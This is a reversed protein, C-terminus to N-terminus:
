RSGIRFLVIEVTQLLVMLDFALTHHKVYYLDYELKERADKESAGYNYRVQAWGTIGPKVFHRQRYYPIAHALTEVFAPREPRPGVFSMQGLLVNVLQPIEDIRLRRIIRGVFTIRSDGPAAWQPHGGKEADVCMSRFKYIKFRRGNQGVRLQSYFIPGGDELFIAIMALLAVPLAALLIWLSVAIDFCRKSSLRFLDCRFGESFILWSPHVLDVSVRGSERELFTLLDTVQIGRLRCELLEATPFNARRDDMAIVIEEVKHRLAIRLLGTPSDMPEADPVREADGPARLYGIIRFGRQDTRRRLRQAISAARHGAGWILVRRKFIEEDVLNLFAFRVLALGSASFLGILLAVGRGVFLPPVVYFVLALAVEGFVIALLVRVLVGNFRARQHLQYLGLAALCALFVGAVALARPWIPGPFTDFSAFAASIGDFRVLIAAYVSGVIIAAEVLALLALRHVHQNFVRVSVVRQSGADVLEDTSAALSTRSL